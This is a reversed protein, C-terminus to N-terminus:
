LIEVTKEKHGRFALNHVELYEILVLMRQLIERWGAQLHTQLQCDITAGCEIWKELGLRRNITM